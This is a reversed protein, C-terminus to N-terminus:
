EESKVSELREVVHQISYNSYIREVARDYENRDMVRDEQKVLATNLDEHWKKTLRISRM